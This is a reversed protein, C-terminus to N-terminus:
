NYYYKFKGAFASWDAEVGKMGDMKKWVGYKGASKSFRAVFYVPREHGKYYCFDGTMRFGEIENDSVVKVMSGSENTLGVGLNILINGEGAPFSYRHLGVRQTATVEAKIGYKEFEGSYYGPTAKQNKIVSGYKEVEAQVKGTTPMMLIVGLEPCGVGSLNVHTFGTSYSNDSSFPTSWWQADKDFKNISSGTVNFPTVSVMGNPVIAGPNTTGYNSTGIFPNVMDAPSQAIAMGAPLAMMLILKSIKM